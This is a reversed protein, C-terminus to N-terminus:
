LVWGRLHRNDYERVWFDVEASSGPRKSMVYLDLDSGYQHNSQQLFLKKFFTNIITLM